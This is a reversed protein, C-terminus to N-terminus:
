RLYPLPGFALGHPLHDINFILKYVYNNGLSKVEKLVLSLFYNYMPSFTLPIILYLEVYM